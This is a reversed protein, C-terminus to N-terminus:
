GGQAPTESPVKCFAVVKRMAKGYNKTTGFVLCVSEELESVCFVKGWYHDPHDQKGSRLARQKKACIISNACIFNFKFSLTLHDKKAVQRKRSKILIGSATVFLSKSESKM